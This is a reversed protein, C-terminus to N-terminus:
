PDGGATYRRGENYHYTKVKQSLGFKRRLRDVMYRARGSNTYNVHLLTEEPGIEPPAVSGSNSNTLWQHLTDRLTAIDPVPNEFALTFRADDPQFRPGIQARIRRLGEFGSEFMLVASALANPHYCPHSRAPPSPPVVFGDPGQRQLFFIDRDDAAFGVAIVVKDCGPCYCAEVGSWGDREADRPLFAKKLYFPHVREQCTPCSDIWHNKDM